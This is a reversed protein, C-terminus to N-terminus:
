PCQRSQRSFLRNSAHSWKPQNYVLNFWYSIEHANSGQEDVVTVDENNNDGGGAGDLNAAQRRVEPGTM